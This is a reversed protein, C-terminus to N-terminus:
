SVLAINEIFITLVLGVLSGAIGAATAHQLKDLRNGGRRSAIRIGWVIGILLVAVVIM